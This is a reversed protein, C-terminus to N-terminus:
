FVSADPTPRPTTSNCIHSSVVHWFSATGSLVLRHGMANELLLRVPASHLYLLISLCARPIRCPSLFKVMITKGPLDEDYGVM